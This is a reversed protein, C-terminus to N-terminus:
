KVMKDKGYLWLFKDIDRLSYRKEFVNIKQDIFLRLEDCYEEYGAEERVGICKKVIMDMIPYVNPNTFSLFKSTFVPISNERGRASDVDKYEVAKLKEYLEFNIVSDKKAADIDKHYRMIHKTAIDIGGKNFRQVGTSYLLDLLGLRCFLNDYNNNDANDFLRKLVEDYAGYEKDYESIYGDISEITIEKDPIM